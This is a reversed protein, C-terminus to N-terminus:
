LLLEFLVVTLKVAAIETDDTEHLGALRPGFPDLVHVTTSVFGAAPPPARTVSVLVLVVSVTGADTVTEDPSIVPVNLTVVAVM